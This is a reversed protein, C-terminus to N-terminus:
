HCRWDVDAGRLVQEEVIMDDIGEFVDYPLEVTGNAGGFVGDDLSVPRPLSSTASYVQEAARHQVVLLVAVELHPVAGGQGELAGVYTATLLRLAAILRAIGDGVVSDM